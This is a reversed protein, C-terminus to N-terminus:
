SLFETIVRNVEDPQDYHLMHGADAIVLHRANRFLAQRRRLESEYMEVQDKLEDRTASWYDLSHEGTVILVPCEIWGWLAETEAHSFTHWIMQVAPDWRWQVGGSPHQVVGHDVIIQALESSLRPNNRMLRMRAETDDQMQQNQSSLMRTSEVGSVLRQRLSDQGPGDQNAPPGMGDLLVLRSIEDQFMGAYRSAIHGGLSHAIIVPNSLECHQVLDRLDAIFQVLTYVGPNDSQGHGRLDMAVVHYDATLARAIGLMSLAHDRMGHLIVLDPKGTNRFDIASIRSGSSTFFFREFNEM